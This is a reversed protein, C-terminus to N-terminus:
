IPSTKIPNGGREPRETLSMRIYAGISQSVRPDAGAWTPRPPVEAPKSDPHIQAPARIHAGPSEAINM